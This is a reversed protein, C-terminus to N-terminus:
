KARGKLWAKCIAVIARGSMNGSDEVGALSIDALTVSDVAAQITALDKPRAYLIMKGCCRERGYHPQITSQQLKGTTLIKSQPKTNM